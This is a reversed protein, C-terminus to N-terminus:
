VVSLDYNTQATAADPILRGLFAQGNKQVIERAMESSSAVVVVNFGLRVTMVPGYTEALKTISEHPRDGLTLLSGIIPLGTPGPPLQVRKRFLWNKIRLLAQTFILLFLSYLLFSLPEMLSSQAM